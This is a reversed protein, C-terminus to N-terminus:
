FLLLVPWELITSVKGPDMSLSNPSLVFGLYEVTDEHFSCKDGRTYLKNNWLQLLVERIHHRHEELTDSYILINDLYVLVCIDLLDSFVNNMLRQFTAPANTLGFPMVCWEFSGYRTCFATKWEDGEQIQILHYAHWLDIKSYFRAKRPSDLLDTIRPLLYRDKKTIKNLGQFDVCLWLSGDKKKIFLVLARSPSHTPCILGNALHEDIFERLTQLEHPSLSYIPGFPPIAGDELKIKLNYPQHTPLTNTRSKSFMDRFEHYELPVNSMDVPTTDLDRPDVTSVFLKFVQM